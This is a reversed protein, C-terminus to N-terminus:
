LIVITPQFLLPPSSISSSSAETTISFSSIIFGHHTGYILVGRPTRTVVNQGGWGSCHRDDEGEEWGVGLGSASGGGGGGPGPVAVMVWTYSWNAVQLVGGKKGIM